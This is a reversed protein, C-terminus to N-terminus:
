QQGGVKNKNAAFNVRWFQMPTLPPSPNLLLKCFSIKYQKTNVVKCQASGVAIKLQMSLTLASFCIGPVMLMKM